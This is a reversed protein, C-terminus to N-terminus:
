RFSNSRMLFHTKTIAAPAAEQARVTKFKYGIRRVGILSLAPRRHLELLQAIQHRDM